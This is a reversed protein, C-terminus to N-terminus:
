EGDPHNEQWRATNEAEWAIDEDTDLNLAGISDLYDFDNLKNVLEFDYREDPKVIDKDLLYSDLQKQKDLYYDIIRESSHGTYPMIQEKTKGYKFILTSVFTHRAHRFKIEKSLPIPSSWVATSSRGRYSKKTITRKFPMGDTAHSKIFDGFKEDTDIKNEFYCIIDKLLNTVHKGTYLPIDDNQYKKFYADLLGSFMQKKTKLQHYQRFNDKYLKKTVIQSVDSIRQGGIAFALLFLKKAAMMQKSPIKDDFYILDLEIPYLSEPNVINLTGSYPFSYKLDAYNKKKVTRCFTMFRRLKKIQKYVTDHNLYTFRDNIPGEKFQYGLLFLTFDKLLKSDFDKM